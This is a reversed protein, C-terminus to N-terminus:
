TAPTRATARRRDRGQEVVGLEDADAREGHGDPRGHVDAHLPVPRLGAGARRLRVDRRRVEGHRCRRAPDTDAVPTARPRTSASTSRRAEVAANGEDPATANFTVTANSENLPSAFGAIPQDDDTTSTSSANNGMGRAAFAHWLAAQNAGGFRMVDAALYADRADLMSTDGVARAALADYVLQIWRRNGPCQDARSSRRRGRLAEATGRRVVPVDRQVQRGAGPPRRLEGRELDRRRRPGRRGAHRLRRRQLQAPQTSRTTASASTRTGPRTRASRGRTRATRRCTGTRTSTSWRTSTPGSEGMAGAQAGSLGSDPGAVMRNSILHTYEHGFVSTDLDGDVCPAYFAGAIPQFLYQNTIPPIGDNLTIQNANDRGEYTPAGGTVAGAQVDGQKPTARAAPRIRGPATNGFNYLQANYNTETFGLYYSFDHM